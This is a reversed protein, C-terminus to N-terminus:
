AISINDLPDLISNNDTPNPLSNANWIRIPNTAPIMYNSDNGLVTPTTGNTKAINGSYTNTSAAASVDQIGAFTNGIITNNKIVNDFSTVAPANGGDATYIGINNGTITNGSINGYQSGQLYIGDGTGSANVNNSYNGGTVEASIGSLNLGYVQGAGVTLGSTDSNNMGKCNKIVPPPGMPSSFKFGGTVAFYVFNTPAQTHNCSECDEFVVTYFSDIDIGVAELFGTNNSPGGNVGNWTNGKAYISCSDVILFAVEIFSAGAVSYDYNSQNSLIFKGFKCNNMNIVTEAGTGTSWIAVVPLFSFNIPSAAISSGFICSTNDFTNGEYNMSGVYLEHYINVMAYELNASTPIANAVLTNDKFSSNIVSFDGTSNILLIIGFNYQQAYEAYLNAEDITNITSTSNNFSCKEFSFGVSAIGSAYFNQDIVSITTTIGLGITRDFSCNTAQVHGAFSITGDCLIQAAASSPTNPLLTGLTSGFTYSSGYKTDDFHCSNLKLGFNNVTSIASWYNRSIDGGTIETGICHYLIIGGYCTYVPQVPMDSVGNNYCNLNDLKLSTVYESRPVPYGLPMPTQGAQIPAYSFGIISGNFVRVNELGPDVVIGIVYLESKDIQRFTNQQLNLSVNPVTIRIGVRITDQYGSGGVTVSIETIQMNLLTPYAVAGTGTGGFILTPVSSWKKECNVLIAGIVVGQIVAAYGVLIKNCGDLGFIPVRKRLPKPRFKVADGLFWAGESKIKFKNTNIQEASIYRSCSDFNM